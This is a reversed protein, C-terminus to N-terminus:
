RGSIVLAASWCMAYREQLALLRSRLTEGLAKSRALLNEPEFHDFVALAAECAVPNGGHTGGIGSPNGAAM